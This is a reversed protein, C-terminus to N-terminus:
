RVLETHYPNDPINSIIRWTLLSLEPDQLNLVEFFTEFINQTSSLLESVMKSTAPQHLEENYRAVAEDDLLAEAITQEDEGHRKYLVHRILQESHNPFMQKMDEFLREDLKQPSQEQDEVADVTLHQKNDIKM